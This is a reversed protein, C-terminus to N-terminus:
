DVFTRIANSVGCFEVQLDAVGLKTFRDAVARDPNVIWVASKRITTRLLSQVLLGADPLSYGLVFVRDAFRLAQYSERWLSRIVPNDFYSSKVATPPVILPAKGPARHAAMEDDILQERRAWGSRLGIEVISEASRTTEGWYWHTSGHLKRFRFSWASPSGPGM